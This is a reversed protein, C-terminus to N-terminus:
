FPRQKRQLGCSVQQCTGRFGNGCFASVKDADLSQRPGLAGHLTFDGYDVWLWDGMVMICGRGFGPSHPTGKARKTQLSVTPPQQTLNLPTVTASLNRNNTYPRSGFAPLMRLWENWWFHENQGPTLRESLFQWVFVLMWLLRSEEKRVINQGTLGFNYAGVWLAYCSWNSKFCRAVPASWNILMLAYLLAWVRMPLPLRRWLLPLPPPCFCVCFALHSIYINDLLYFLKILLVMIINIILNTM